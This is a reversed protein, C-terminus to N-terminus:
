KFSFLMKLENQMYFDSKLMMPSKANYKEITM